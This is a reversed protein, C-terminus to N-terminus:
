KTSPQLVAPFTPFLITKPHNLRLLNVSVTMNYANCKNRVEAEAMIFHHNEDKQPSRFITLCHYVCTCRHYFWSFTHYGWFVITFSHYFGLLVMNFKAFGLLGM